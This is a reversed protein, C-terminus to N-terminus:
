FRTVPKFRPDRFAAAQALDIIAEYLKLHPLIYGICGKLNGDLHLSVFLGFSKQFIAYDPKAPLENTMGLKFAISSRAIELCLKKEIESLV